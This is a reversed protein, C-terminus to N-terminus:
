DAAAELPGARLEIRGTSPDITVTRKQDDFSLELQAYHAFSGNASVELTNGQVGDILVRSIRVGRFVADRDYDREFSGPGIPAALPYGAASTLTYGGGDEDFNIRLNTLLYSARERLEAIDDVLLRTASNLTIEARGFWSPIGVISGLAISALLLLVGTLRLSSKRPTNSPVM